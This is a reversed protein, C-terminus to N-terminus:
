SFANFTQETLALVLNGTTTINNHSLSDITQKSFHSANALKKIRIYFNEFICLLISFVISEFTGLVWGYTNVWSGEQILKWGMWM